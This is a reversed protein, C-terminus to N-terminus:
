KDVLLQSGKCVTQVWILVSMVDTRIKIWIRQWGSLTRSLNKPFTSKQFLWCVVFCFSKAHFIVWCALIKKKKLHHTSLRLSLCHILIFIDVLDVDCCDLFKFLWSFLLSGVFNSFLLSLLHYTKSSMINILGHWASYKWTSCEEGIKIRKVQLMGNNAHILISFLRIAKYSAM